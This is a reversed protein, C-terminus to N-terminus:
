AAARYRLARTARGAVALLAVLSARLSSQNSDGTTAPGADTSPLKGVDGGDAVPINYWECAVDDGTDFAFRIGLLPGSPQFDITEYDFDLPEGGHKTCFVAYKGTASAPEGVTVVDPRTPDLDYPALSFTVLGDGRSTTTEANATNPTAISFDIGADPAACDEAYSEGTYGPLCQAVGIILSGGGAGCYKPSPDLRHLPSHRTGLPEYCGARLAM